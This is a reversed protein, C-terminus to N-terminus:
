RNWRPRLEDVFRSELGRLQAKLDAGAQQRVPAFWLEIVGGLEHERRVNANIRCNTQQGGVFCNRPQIAAYGGSGWRRAVNLTEGVYVPAGDVTLVYLGAQATVRGLSFRCFPLAGYAHLPKTGFHASRSAPADVSEPKLLGLRRFRLDMGTDVLPASYASVWDEQARTEIAGPRARRVQEIAESGSAGCEIM